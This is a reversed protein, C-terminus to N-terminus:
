NDALDVSSACKTCETGTAGCWECHDGCPSCEPADAKDGIKDKYFGPECNDGCTHTESDWYQVDPSSAPTCSLCDTADDGCTICDGICVSCQPDAVNGGVIDGFTGAPCNEKTVCTNAATNLHM